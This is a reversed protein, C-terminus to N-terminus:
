EKFMRQQYGSLGNLEFELHNNKYESPELLETKKIIPNFVEIAIIQEYTKFVLGCGPSEPTDQCRRFRIKGNLGDRTDFVISKTNGCRPCEM